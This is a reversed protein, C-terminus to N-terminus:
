TTMPIFSERRWTVIVIMKEPDEEEKSVFNMEVRNEVM